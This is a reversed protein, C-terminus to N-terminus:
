TDANDVSVVRDIEKKQGQERVIYFYIAPMTFVNLILILLILITKILIAKILTNYKITLVKIILYVVAYIDFIVYIFIIISLMIKPFKGYYIEINYCWGIIGSICYLLAFLTPYLIIIDHIKIKMLVNNNM